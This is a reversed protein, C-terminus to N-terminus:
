SNKLLRILESVEKVPQQCSYDRCLFFQSQGVVPKNRLIPLEPHNVSSIQHSDSSIQFIRNPILKELFEKHKEVSYTGALVIEYLPYTLANILTAWFAFSGPYRKIVDKLGAASGAARQKWESVDFVTGLYLLNLAMVANGSPTAGDYMDRKRVIVDNQASHTYFFYGTDEESFNELVWHTLTKARILFEAEGTIEQLQIYSEILFAYDDLFAPINQRDNGTDPQDTGIAAKTDNEATNKYSHIFFNAGEGRMKEELFAINKLALIRYKQDGLASYAKCCATIMLANWGLLIKDDLRPRIRENRKELLRRRWDILRADEESLGLGKEVMESLKPDKKNFFVSEPFKIRLINKGEWNGKESVDYVSCFDEGHPGLVDLIENKRWTYFKGEEGESDADLASYFGGKKSSLENQVFDMTERIARSYHPKGTLQYAESLVIILLANDYLMKEFHPALWEDDTSYRAFGGALQDYIGGYIMKDLSLCAQDLSEQDGTYYFNQLLFRISFSQPFKPATGFGGSKHDATKMLQDRIMQVDEMNFIQGEAPVQTGFVSGAIHNTLNEAQEDIEKRKDRFADSISQLVSKWSARNHLNVPPFYTGGYFPKGEPTLFVNLPWGGNGAIAQVADMYIQDLDPREERDIKINVFLRNMIEATEPDEFSEREMV